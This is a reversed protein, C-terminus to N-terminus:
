SQAEHAAKEFKRLTMTTISDQVVEYYQGDDRTLVLRRYPLHALANKFIVLNIFFGSIADASPTFGERIQALLELLDLSVRLEAPRTSDISDESNTPTHLFLLHDATYEIYRDGRPQPVQLDFDSAPFLRFSRIRRGGKGSRLCINKAALTADRAGEAKSIGEVLLQKIKEIDAIDGHTVSRFLELQSYPLMHQWIDGRREYFAIRRLVAHRARQERLALADRSASWGTPLQWEALWQYALNSRQEFSLMPIDDTGHFHLLRDISPNAIEAPDVQRLQRVLRDDGRGEPPQGDAAFANIYLLELRKRAPTPQSLLEAIDECSHDRAILWALASRLDRMTIHMQRRLHVIEFLIRLRERVAPGVISDMLTIANYRIPCVEAFACSSCDQWLEPQLLAQLQREFISAQGISDPDAAVVSRQNLDIILLWDLAESAQDPDFYSRIAEGLRGFATAGSHSLAFFDLL